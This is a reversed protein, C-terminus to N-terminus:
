SWPARSADVYGRVAALDVIDGAAMRQLPTQDGFFANPRTVWSDAKTPDSYVINLGKFIGAVYGIRRLTDASVRSGRGAKWEFFTRTPPSGILIRAVDNPVNWRDMIAFFGAIAAVGDIAEIAAPQRAVQTNM